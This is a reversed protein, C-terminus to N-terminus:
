IYEKVASLYCGLLSMKERLNRGAAAARRVVVVQGEDGAVVEAGEGRLVEAVDEVGCVDGAGPVLSVVGNLGHNNIDFNTM